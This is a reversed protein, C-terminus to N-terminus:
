FNFSMPRLARMMWNQRSRRLNDLTSVIFKHRRAERAYSIGKIIKEDIQRNLAALERRLAKELQQKSM